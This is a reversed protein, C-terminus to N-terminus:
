AKKSSSPNKQFHFIGFIAKEKNKDVQFAQSQCFMTQAAYENGTEESTLHLSKVTVRSIKLANFLFCICWLTNVPFSFTELFQFQM